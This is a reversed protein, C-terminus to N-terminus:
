PMVDNGREAHSRMGHREADDRRLFVCPMQAHIGVGLTPVM